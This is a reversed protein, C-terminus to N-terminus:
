GMVGMAAFCCSLVVVLSVLGVLVVFSQDARAAVTVAVKPSKTAKTTFDVAQPPGASNWM